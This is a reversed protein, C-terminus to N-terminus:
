SRKSTPIGIGSNMEVFMSLFLRNQSRKSTTTIAIKRPFFCDVAIILETYKTKNSLSLPYEKGAEEELFTPRDQNFANKLLSCSKAM